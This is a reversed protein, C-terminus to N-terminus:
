AADKRYTVTLLSSFQNLRNLHDPDYIPANKIKVWRAGGMTRQEDAGLYTILEEVFTTLADVEPVEDEPNDLRKMIGIDVEIEHRNENRSERTIERDRPVATVKLEDMEKLDFIPLYTREATFAQSFTGANLSDILATTIDQIMSM